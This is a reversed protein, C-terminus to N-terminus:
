MRAFLIESLGTLYLVQFQVQGTHASISLRSGQQGSPGRRVGGRRARGGWAEQFPEQPTNTKVTRGDLPDVFISREITVRLSSAM